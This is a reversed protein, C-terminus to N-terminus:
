DDDDQSTCNHAAEKEDVYFSSSPWGRDSTLSMVEEESLSNSLKHVIKAIGYSGRRPPVWYSAGPVFPLWDPASKLVIIRHIADEIRQVAIAEADPVDASGSKASCDSLSSVRRSSPLFSSAFAASSPSKAGATTRYSARILNLTQQICRAM